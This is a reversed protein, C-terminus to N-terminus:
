KVLTLMPESSRECIYDFVLKRGEERVWKDAIDVPYVYARANNGLRCERPVISNRECFKRLSHASKVTVGRKVKGPVDKGRLLPEIVQGATKGERVLYGASASVVAQEIMAPIAKEIQTVKHSLMRLMGDDRRLMEVFDAPFAFTPRAAEELEQWRDVVRATFEPSLQAVVIYSSRKDLRYVKVPKTATSIEEMPPSKIVGREVLREVTRKVNDHRCELLEAIERSSMTLAAGAMPLHNMTQVAQATTTEMNM